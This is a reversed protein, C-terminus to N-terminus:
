GNKKDQIHHRKIGEIPDDGRPPHDHPGELCYERWACGLQDCDVEVRRYCDPNGEARQISRILAIRDLFDKKPLSPNRSKM